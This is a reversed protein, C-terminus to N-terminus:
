KAKGSYIPTPLATGDAGTLEQRTSYGDNKGLRSTVFTAANQRIKRLDADIKKLPKKTEKDLIPGFMGIIPVVSEIELDENLVKEAKAVLNLKRYKATFWDQKTITTATSHTYRAKVASRYANGYTDGKRDIYYSWCVDQRLDLNFQNAGEPNTKPKEKTRAM